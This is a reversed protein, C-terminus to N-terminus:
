AFESIKHPSKLSVKINCKCNCQGDDNCTNDESGDMNCECAVFFFCASHVICHLDLSVSICVNPTPSNTTDPNLKTVSTELLTNKARVNAMPMALITLPDRKM